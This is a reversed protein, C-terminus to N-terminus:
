SLVVMAEVLLILAFFGQTPRWKYNPHGAAADSGATTELPDADHWGALMVFPILLATLAILTVAIGDVGLDYRLGFDKVWAHSETLQYRDGGPDFRVLAVAALVLTGLAFVLATYKAATRKAAPVAATVVAGVAPLAATVTLLPFSM